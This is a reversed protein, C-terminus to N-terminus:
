LADAKGDDGAPHDAAEEPATKLGKRGGGADGHGALGLLLRLDMLCAPKRGDQRQDAIEDEATDEGDGAEDHKRREANVDRRQKGAEAHKAQRKGEARLRQDLIHYGADEEDGVVCKADAFIDVGALELSRDLANREARQAQAVLVALDM